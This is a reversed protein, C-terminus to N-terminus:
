ILYAHNGDSDVSSGIMSNPGEDTKCRQQKKHFLEM